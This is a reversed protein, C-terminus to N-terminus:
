FIFNGIQGLELGQVRLEREVLKGDTKRTILTLEWDAVPRGM